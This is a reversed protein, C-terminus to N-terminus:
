ILNTKIGDILSLTAMNIIINIQTDANIKFSKNVRKTAEEGYTVSTAVLFLLIFLVSINYSLQKM